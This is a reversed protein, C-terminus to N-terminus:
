SVGLARQILTFVETQDHLGLVSAAGPGHAAIRVQSGTHVQIEGPLNTAYNITMPEGDHATLTVTSGPSRVDNPIIQSSHGHDATVLVLTDGREDAFRVGIAVAEDLAGLEGIMGCPDADHGANDILGGEVMLFFGRDDSSLLELARATMQALTPQEPPLLPNRACEAPETGGPRAIPGTWQRHLPGDAFLGLLPQGPQAQALETATTVIRYGAAIAQDLVTGGAFEGGRVRQRFYGAGGGMLVDPRTRVLQEAISGAGGVATDQAPCARMLEPGRCTRDAVHAGMAAPTPDCVEETTVIGTRLGRAQALEVLTPRPEGTHDVGIAGNYTKHGTAWATAAAASDTVYNHRGASGKQLSHNTCSGTYIFGDLVLRGAPGALVNRAATLEADGMGDGVFLIVSRHGPRESGPKTPAPTM